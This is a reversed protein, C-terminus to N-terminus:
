PTKATAELLTKAEQDIGTLEAPTVREKHKWTEARRYFEEARSKQGLRWCAMAGYYWDFGDGGARFMMSKELSDVASRFDGARYQAAGQTNWFNANRPSMEVAKHAMDVAQAREGAKADRRNVLVWAM